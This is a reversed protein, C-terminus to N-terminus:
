NNEFSSKTGKSITTDFTVNDLVALKVKKDDQLDSQFDNYGIDSDNTVNYFGKPPLLICKLFYKISKRTGNLEKKFKNLLNSKCELLAKLKENEMELAIVKANTDFERQNAEDIIRKMEKIIIKFGNKAKEFSKNANHLDIKYKEIEVKFNKVKDDEPTSINSEQKKDKNHVEKVIVEVATTNNRFVEYSTGPDSRLQDKSNKRLAFTSFMEEALTLKSKPENTM